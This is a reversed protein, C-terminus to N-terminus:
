IPLSLPIPCIKMLYNHSKLCIDVHYCKWCITLLRYFILNIKHLCNYPWFLVNLLCRQFYREFIMSNKYCCFWVKPPKYVYFMVYSVPMYDFLNFSSQSIVSGFLCLFLYIIPLLTLFEVRRSTDFLIKLTLIFM